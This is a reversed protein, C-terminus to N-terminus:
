ENPESEIKPSIENLYEHLSIKSDLPLGAITAAGGKKLSPSKFKNIILLIEKENAISAGNHDILTLTIDQVSLYGDADRDCYWFAASKDFAPRKSIRERLCESARLNSFIAEWLSSLDSMLQDDDLISPEDLTLSESHLPFFLPALALRLDHYTFMGDQQSNYRKFFLFLDEDTVDMILRLQTLAEKLLQPTIYGMKGDFDFLGYIQRFFSKPYSEWNSALNSKAAELQRELFITDKFVKAAEIQELKDLPPFRM